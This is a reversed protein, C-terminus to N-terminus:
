KSVDLDYAGDSPSAVVEISLPTTKAEGYKKDLLSKAIPRSTSRSKTPKPLEGTATIVVKYWGPPAGKRTKTYIVYNGDADITGSPEFTTDNGKELDPKLVVYGSQVKLPEKNLLVKGSVPYITGLDNKGCGNVFICALIGLLCPSHRLLSRMLM